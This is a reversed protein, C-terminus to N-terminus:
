PGATQRPRDLLPLRPTLAAGFRNETPNPCRARRPRRLRVQQLEGEYNPFGLLPCREYEAMVRV